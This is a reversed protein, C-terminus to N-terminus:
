ETQEAPQELSLAVKKAFEGVFKSQSAVSRELDNMKEKGQALAKSMENTLYSLKELQSFFEKQKSELLNIKRDIEQLQTSYNELKTQHTDFTEKKMSSLKDEHNVMKGELISIEMKLTHLDHKAEELDARTKHLTIEMQYKESKPQMSTSTCSAFAFLFFLPTIRM